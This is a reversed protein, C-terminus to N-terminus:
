VQALDDQIEVVPNKESFHGGRTGAGLFFDSLDDM